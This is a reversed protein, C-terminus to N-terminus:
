HRRDCAILTLVGEAGGAEVGAGCSGRKEKWSGRSAHSYCGGQLKLPTTSTRSPAGSCLLEMGDYKRASVTM